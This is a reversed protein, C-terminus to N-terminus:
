IPDECCIGITLDPYGIEGGTRQYQRFDLGRCAIDNVIGACIDHNAGITVCLGDDHGVGGLATQNHFFIVAHCFQGQSACLELDDIGITLQQRVVLAQGAAVAEIGGINIALDDEGLYLGSRQDYSLDPGRVIVLCVGHRLRDHDIRTIGLGEAEIIVGEARQGDEFPISHRLLRQLTRLEGDPVTLAPGDPGVIAPIDGPGVPSHGDGPQCRVGGNHHRFAFGGSAIDLVLGRFVDNDPTANGVAQGKVVLGGSCQDDAFEDLPGCVFRQAPYGEFHDIPATRRNSRIVPDIISVM